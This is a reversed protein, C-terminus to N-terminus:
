KKYKKYVFYGGVLVVLGVGVYMLTKKNFMPPKDGSGQTGQPTKQITELNIDVNVSPSNKYKSLDFSKTVYGAKSFTLQTKDTKLEYTGDSYTKVNQVGDSVIVDKLEKDASDLVSGSVDYAM